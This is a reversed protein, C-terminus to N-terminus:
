THERSTAVSEDAASEYVSSLDLLRRIRDDDAGDPDSASWDYVGRGTKEGLRGSAVLESLPEPPTTGRDLDPLLESLVTHHVDLGSRDAKEFVGLVPLRYGFTGKVIRDIEEANAVDAGLLAWAEHAMASQIRNAVFGPIDRRLVVPDKGISDLFWSARELTEGTTREGPVVEVGPVVHAPHFWHTGCFRTPDDVFAALEDISFSSTNTALVAGDPAHRDILEFAERKTEREEPVAEIVIGAGDVAEEIRTVYEIRDTIEGPAEIGRAGHDAIARAATDVRERATEIAPESVDFLTTGHGGAACAVAIAHGMTGAGVVAPSAAPEHDDGSHADTM